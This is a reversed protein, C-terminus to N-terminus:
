DSETVSHTHGAPQVCIGLPMYKLKHVEGEGTDTPERPDLLLCNGTCIQITRSRGLQTHAHYYHYHYHSHPSPSSAHPPRTQSHPQTATRSCSSAKSM